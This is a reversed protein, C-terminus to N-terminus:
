DAAVLGIRVVADIGGGVIGVPEPAEHALVLTMVADEDLPGTGFQCIVDIARKGTDPDAHMCADLDWVQFIGDFPNSGRYTAGHLEICEGDQAHRTELIEVNGKM